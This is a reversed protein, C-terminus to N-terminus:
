FDPVSNIYLQREEASTETEGNPTGHYHPPYTMATMNRGGEPSIHNKLANNPTTQQTAKDAYLARQKRKATTESASPM